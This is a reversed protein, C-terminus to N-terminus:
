ANGPQVQQGRPRLTLQTPQDITLDLRIVGDRITISDYPGDIQPEGDPWRVWLSGSRVPVPNLRIAMTSTSPDYLESEVEHLGQGIHFSTGLIRPRDDAPSLALLRCGHAPVRPLTLHGRTVGLSVQAWVDFVEATSVALTLDREEDEWNFVAVILREGADLELRYPLDSDLANRVVAASPLPPLIFSLTALASDELETLNDSLVVMGGSLGIVTALSQIESPSLRTRSNRVLVCDPDNLWLRRHSWARQLTNRIAAEAAPAGNLRPIQLRSGDPQRPGRARWWPAVDPGIRMGDVLGVSALQMAGCGLVFRDGAARRIIALGERYAELPTHRGSHRSGPVAAAFVFDVKVYDFGWDEFVEVFLRQLWDRVAPNTLDLAYNAQDWNRVAVVPHGLADRVFWDPHERALRSNESALFPALWLGAKFNARHIENAIRKAGGPFRDNWDRWDGIDSQYGDDLQVFEVPLERRHGELFRLNALLDEERVAAYYYYWSCWGTPASDSVETAAADAVADGYRALATEPDDSLEIRLPELGVVDGADVALGGALWSCALSRGEVTVCGLFRDASLFGACLAVRPGALVGVDFSSLEKVPEGFGTLLGDALVEDPASLATVYAPSWSQWGQKWCRDFAGSALGSLAVYRLEAPQDTVLELRLFAVPEQASLGVILRLAAVDCHGSLRIEYGENADGHAADVHLGTVLEESSATVVKITIQGLSSASAELDFSNDHLTFSLTETRYSTM